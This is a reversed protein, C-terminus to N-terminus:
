SEHAGVEEPRPGSQKRRRRVDYLLAFVLVIFPVLAINILKLRVDLRDIDRQLDHQVQRLERRIEVKRNMFRKLEEQQEDSLVTLDGEGKASQLDTLRRETEELEQKLREEQSRYAQEAAVRLADVREFPRASTARTRISILDRNGLMNDVANVALSGNDAFASVLNQGMFPQKQVWLRDTLMDTDAFLM